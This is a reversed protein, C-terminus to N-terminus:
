LKQASEKIDKSLDEPEEKGDNGYNKLIGVERMAAQVEGWSKDKYMFFIMVYIDHNM